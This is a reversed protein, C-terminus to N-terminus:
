LIYYSTDELRRSSTLVHKM